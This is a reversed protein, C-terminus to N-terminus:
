VQSNTLLSTSATKGRRSPRDNRQSTPEDQVLLMPSPMARAAPGRSTADCVSLANRTASAAISWRSGQSRNPRQAPASASRRFRRRMTITALPSRTATIAASHVNMTVSTTFTKRTRATMNARPTASTNASEALWVSRGITIGLASRAIPWARSMAPKTVAFWSAPGGIPANKNAAPMAQGNATWATVADRAIRSTERTATVRTGGRSVRVCMRWSM